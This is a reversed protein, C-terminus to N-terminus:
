PALRWLKTDEKYITQQGCWPAFDPFEEAIFTSTDGYWNDKRYINKLVTPNIGVCDILFNNVANDTKMKYFKYHDPGALISDVVNLDKLIFKWDMLEHLSHHHFDGIESLRSLITRYLESNKRFPILCHQPASHINIVKDLHSFYEYPVPGLGWMTKIERHAHNIVSAFREVPERVLACFTQPQKLNCNPNRPVSSLEYMNLTGQISTQCAKTIRVIWKDLIPDIDLPRDSYLIEAERPCSRYNSVMHYVTTFEQQLQVSM